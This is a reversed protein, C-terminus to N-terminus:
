SLASSARRVQLGGDPFDPSQAAQASADPREEDTSRDASHGDESHLVGKESPSADHQKDSM